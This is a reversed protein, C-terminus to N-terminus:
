FFFSPLHKITWVHPPLTKLHSHKWVIINYLVILVCCLVIQAVLWLYNVELAEMALDPPNHYHIKRPYRAAEEHLYHAAQIYLPSRWCVFMITLLYFLPFSHLLYYFITIHASMLTWQTWVAGRMRQQGGHCQTEYLDDAEVSRMLVISSHSGGYMTRKLFFFVDQSPPLAAIETETPPNHFLVLSLLFFM